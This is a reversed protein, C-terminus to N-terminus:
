RYKFAQPEVDNLERYRDFLQTQRSELDIWRGGSMVQTAFSTVELPDGSWLVFDASAGTAIQAVEELGYIEAPTSSIARIGVAWPLGHAVANGAHQRLLRTNHLDTTVIAIQVGAAHLLAANDLRAGLQEFSLPLNMLPDLIVPVGAAALEDAVQWAEAGGSLILRLDFDKALRLLQRIDAARHAKIVLPKNNEVMEELALMDARSYEGLDRVYSKAKFNTLATLNRRLRGFIEARSGGVKNASNSGVSGFMALRAKLLSGQAYNVFAGYGAIPDPGVRPTMVGYMVGEVLNVRVAVGAPNFGYQVDFAPGISLDSLRSDVTTAELDIEDLGLQGEASFLGATLHQGSGEIIKMNTSTALGPGITEIRDDVVLVDGLEPALDPDSTHVTVNQILITDAQAVNSAMLTIVLAKSILSAISKM